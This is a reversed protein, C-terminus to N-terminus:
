RQVRVQLAANAQRVQVVHHAPHAAHLVHKSGGRPVHLKAAATQASVVPHAANGRPTTGRSTRHCSGTQALM